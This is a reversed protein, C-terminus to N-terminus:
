GSAEIANEGNAEDKFLANFHNGNAEHGVETTSRTATSTAAMFNISEGFGHSEAELETVESLVIDVHDFLWFIAVSFIHVGAHITADHHDLPCFFEHLLFASRKDHGSLNDPLAGHRLTM